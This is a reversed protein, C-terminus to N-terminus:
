HIIGRAEPSSVDPSAPRQVLDSFNQRLAADPFTSGLAAAAQSRSLAHRVRSRARGGPLLSWQRAHGIDARVLWVPRFWGM